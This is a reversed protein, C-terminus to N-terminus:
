CAELCCAQPGPLPRRWRGPAACVSPPCAPPCMAAAGAGQLPETEARVHRAAVGCPAGKEPCPRPLRLRQAHPARVSSHPRPAAGTICGVLYYGQAPLTRSSMSDLVGCAPEAGGAAALQLWVVPGQCTLPAHHFALATALSNCNQWSETRHCHIYNDHMYRCFRASSLSGLLCTPRRRPCFLDLPRPESLMHWIM